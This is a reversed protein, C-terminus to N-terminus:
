TGGSRNGRGNPRLAAMWMDTMGHLAETQNIDWGTHVWRNHMSELLSYALVARARCSQKSGQKAAILGRAIVEAGQRFTGAWLERIDDEVGAAQAMAVASPRMGEWFAFASELWAEIDSRRGSIVAPYLTEYIKQAEVNTVVWIERILDSKNKFHLYFTQRSAGAVGVIDDITVSVYGKEVILSLASDILRQRTM